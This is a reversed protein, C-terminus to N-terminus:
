PKDTVGKRTPQRQSLVRKITEGLVKVPSPKMLLAQFGLEQLNEETMGEGYGTTLIMALNPNIQRLARSLKTGDMVPMNFDTIVLDFADPKEQVAALALSPNTHTTVVYGLTELMRKGLRTLTADDDVFLIHEGQGRPLPATKLEPASVEKEVLPFFLNFTTGERPQSTVSIAGEHSKMIGHVVALGLGTGAGLPKTTFFPDFIRKLQAQDMGSGTDAVSLCAYRGPRLDSHNLAAAADLEIKRIRVKITGPHGEMAHWANTVLNMVVQHIATSNALIFATENVEAEIRVQSPVSARLLKLADMVVRGLDLSEREQRTQRSFTLIQSVLETARRTALSMLEVSEMVAPNDAAHISILESNGVISALINNFDHAIGGALQGISEMKQSQRFQEELMRRDTIDEATGVLRYVEGAKNHVPFGQAHIWRETKDPRLIRYTVDYKGTKILSKAAQEIHGVDDPHVAEIWQRPNSVLSQCTRGWVKEYAPSVYLIEQMTPDAIWFVEHINEALQRFREESERLSKGARLEDELVSMLARRSKDAVILLRDSEAKRESLAKVQEQLLVETRERKLVEEQLQRTQRRLELQSVVQHSLARLAAEQAGTLLRPVRDLVCLSGLSHGDPTVLPMGAYFRIHPAGTVLPNGAFRPDDQADQVVFMEEPQLITHACFAVDRSTELAMVGFRSKFWQRTEDVLSVLAMPTQCIHSALLTLDDFAQESPTDLVDYQALSALRQAENPPLPAKM